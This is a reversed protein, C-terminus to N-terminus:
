KNFFITISKNWIRTASTSRRTSKTDKTDCIIVSKMKYPVEAWGLISSVNTFWLLHIIFLFWRFNQHLLIDIYFKFPDNNNIWPFIEMCWGCFNISNNEYICIEPLFIYLNFNEAGSIVSNSWFLFLLGILLFENSINVKCLMKIWFIDIFCSNCNSKRHYEALYFGFMM